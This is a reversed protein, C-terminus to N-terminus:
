ASTQSRLKRISSAGSRLINDHPSHCALHIGVSENEESVRGDLDRRVSRSHHSVAFSNMQFLSNRVNSLNERSVQLDQNLEQIRLQLEYVESKHM